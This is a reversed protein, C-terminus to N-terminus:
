EHPLRPNNSTYPLLITRLKKAKEFMSDPIGCLTDIPHDFLARLM